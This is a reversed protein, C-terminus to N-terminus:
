EEDEDLMTTLEDFEFKKEKKAQSTLLQLKNRAEANLWCYRRNPKDKTNQIIKQLVWTKLKRLSTGLLYFDEKSELNLFCLFDDLSSYPMLNDPMTLNKKANDMMHLYLRIWMGITEGDLTGEPMRLEITKRNFESGRKEMYVAHAFNVFNLTVKKQKNNHAGFETPCCERWFSTPTYKTTLSLKKFKTWLKCHKNKSRSADCLLSIMWESKMWHALLVSAHEATFDKAEGHIHFGCNRNVTLGHNRLSDAVQCINKIDEYGSAKYSAIEWGYDRPKLHANPGCTSDQKVHWWNNNISQEWETVHIEHGNMDCNEIVSKVQQKNIDCGTELEIGFPRKSSFGIYKIRPMVM